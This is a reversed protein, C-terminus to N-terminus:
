FAAWAVPMNLVVQGSRSDILDGGLWELVLWKTDMGRIQREPHEELRVYRFCNRYRAYDGIKKKADVITEYAGSMKGSDFQGSWEKGRVELRVPLFMTVPGDPPMGPTPPRDRLSGSTFPGNPLSYRHDGYILPSTQVSDFVCFPKSRIDGFAALGRSMESDWYQDRKDPALRNIQELLQTQRAPDVSNFWVGRQDLAREKMLEHLKGSLLAVQERTEASIAGPPVEAAVPRGSLLAAFGCIALGLRGVVILCATPVRREGRPSAAMRRLRNSPAGDYGRIELTTALCQGATPVQGAAAYPVVRGGEYTSDRMVM